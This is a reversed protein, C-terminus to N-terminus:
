RLVHQSPGEARQTICRREGGDRDHFFKAVLEFCVQKSFRARIFSCRLQHHCSNLWIGFGLYWIGFGPNTKEMGSKTLSVMSSLGMAAGAPVSTISAALRLPM